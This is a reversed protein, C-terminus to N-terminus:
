TQNGGLKHNNVAFTLLPADPCLDRSPRPGFVFFAAGVTMTRGRKKRFLFIGLRRPLCSASLCYICIIQVAM